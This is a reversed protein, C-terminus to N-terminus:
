QAILHEVRLQGFVLSVSSGRQIAGDTNRYLLFYTRGAQIEHKNAMLAPSRVSAGSAEDVLVPYNVSNGLFAQAKDADTVQYRFDILGGDGTVGIMTVRIGWQQEIAAMDVVSGGPTHLSAWAVVGIVLAALGILTPWDLRPPSQRRALRRPHTAVAASASM